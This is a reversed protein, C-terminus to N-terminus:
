RVQLPYTTRSHAQKINLDHTWQRFVNRWSTLWLLGSAILLVWGIMLYVHFLSRWWYSVLAPPPSILMLSLLPLVFSNTVSLEAWLGFLVSGAIPYLVALVTAIWPAAHHHGDDVTRKKVLVNAEPVPPLIQTAAGLPSSPPAAAMLSEATTWVPRAPSDLDVAYSSSSSGAGVVAAATYPLVGNGNQLAIPPSGGNQYVKIPPAVPRLGAPGDAQLSVVDPYRRSLNWRFQQIMDSLSDAWKAALDLLLLWMFPLGIMVCPISALLSWETKPVDPGYGKIQRPPPNHHM